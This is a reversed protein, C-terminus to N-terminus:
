DGKLKDLGAIRPELRGEDHCSHCTINGALSTPDAKWQEAVEAYGTDPLLEIIKGLYVDLEETRGTRACAQALGALLEGRIHLPLRDLARSQMDWLIKYSDYGENFAAERYQEPLRDGFLVYSGGVVAAVVAQKPALKKSEAFLDTAEKYYREFEEDNGAEHALVARYLKSGGKWALLGARSRPRQELLLEINKEGRAYREMDNEQWGAFIDERVLTSIPLRTESLPPDPSEAYAISSLVVVACSWVITRM